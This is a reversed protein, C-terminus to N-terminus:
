KRCRFNVAKVIHESTIKFHEFLQEAPASAGFGDMGVFIGDSGIYKDWGIRVAAEVAVNVQASGIVEEKYSKDQQDFLEWCPMSIVATSIGMEQLKKQAELAIQVESGTAFISVVRDGANERQIIYAGKATMNNKSFNNRITPVSQRTLVIGSPRDPSQIALEWCEATEIPDCPRFLNFNPIARLSALTEVAQHTPGDEGLGISDHTLVYIVRQKMLASLRMSGRMYDAFVLFTGGYPIFGGHLSMGNMIASMAHERVGFHIYRGDFKKSSIPTTANTQTNVSGTLDASGGILEPMKETLIKLVEGSSKRTAWSPRDDVCSEKFEALMESFNTTIKGKTVRWFENSLEDDLAKMRQEWKLFHSQGKSGCERWASLINEPVFFAEHPWKLRERLLAIEDSGLPAGHTAATGEKNPAGFGIITKCSILSPKESTKANQIAIEIADPDHGDVSQTHWESASFRVIQDDLVTLSTPGDICIKNDDFLVILKSLKLNGALSIAEQSLGEMLCGDGVIVYTYHDVINNKFRENLLKEGLAMGVANALGQGLPGTTTEIGSASEYEPHGATKAGLQRFNKLEGLTFDTYGTLYLLSYLLMSGHGASLIFRDRDPWGPNKPDFKLYKTFLVTAVDAMGMPMGPHGSNAQQVADATLIRIANSLENHTPTLKSVQSITM